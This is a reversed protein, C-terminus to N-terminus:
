APTFRLLPPGDETPVFSATVQDGIAVTDPDVDIVNTMIRPGENLEVYAIVYPSADRWRGQGKRIVTFSYISGNGSCDTWTVDESYCAPCMSRPFWITLGCANCRPLSIRGEALGDFYPQDELSPQPARAPLDTM